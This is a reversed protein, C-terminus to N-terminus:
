KNDDIYEKVRKSFDGDILRSVSNRLKVPWRTKGCAEGVALDAWVLAGWRCPESENLMYCVSNSAVQDLQTAIPEGILVKIIERM